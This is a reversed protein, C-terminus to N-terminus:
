CVLTDSLHKCIAARIDVKFNLENLFVDSLLIVIKVKCDDHRQM